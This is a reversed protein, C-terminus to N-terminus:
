RPATSPDSGSGGGMAPPAPTLPAGPETAIPGPPAEPPPQTPPLRGRCAAQALVLFLALQWTKLSPTM